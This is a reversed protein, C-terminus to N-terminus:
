RDDSMENRGYNLGGKNIKAYEKCANLAFVKSIYM